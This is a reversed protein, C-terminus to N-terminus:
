SAPAPTDAAAAPRALEPKLVMDLPEELGFLDLTNRWAAETVDELSVGKLRAIVWAVGGISCPENRGKLMMGETFKKASPPFFVDSLSQPLTKLHANSAQTAKM